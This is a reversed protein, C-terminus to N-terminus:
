CTAGDFAESMVYWQLSTSDQDVAYVIHNIGGPHALTTKGSKDVIDIKTVDLCAVVLWESANKGPETSKITLSAVGTQHWGYVFDDQLVRSWKDYADDRAVALIQTSDPKYQQRLQDILARYRLVVDNAARQGESFTPTPSATSSVVTPTPSPASTSSTCGALAASLLLVVLRVRVHPM